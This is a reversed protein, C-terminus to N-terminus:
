NTAKLGLSVILRPFDDYLMARRNFQHFRLTGDQWKKQKQTKNVTWLCTFEIVTSHQSLNAAMLTEGATWKDHTVFPSDFRM